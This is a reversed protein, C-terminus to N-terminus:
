SRLMLPHAEIERRALEALKALRDGASREWKPWQKGARALHLTLRIAATFDDIHVSEIGM